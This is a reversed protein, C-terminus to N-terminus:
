EFRYVLNATKIREFPICYIKKDCELELVQASFNRVYGTFNRRGAVKQTAMLRIECGKFRKYDAEKFLPREIGPSSVELIYKQPIFDEVDLLVGVQKSVNRCDQLSIGGPKDIYILLISETGRLQYKVHVLELGDAEIVSRVLTETRDAVNM